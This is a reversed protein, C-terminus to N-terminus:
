KMAGWEGDLNECIVFVEGEEAGGLAQITALSAPEQIKSIEVKLEGMDWTGLESSRVCEGAARIEEGCSVRVVVVNGEKRGREKDM